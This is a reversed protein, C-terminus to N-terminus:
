QLYKRIREKMENASMIMQGISVANEKGEVYVSVINHPIERDM